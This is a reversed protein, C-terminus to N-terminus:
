VHYIRQVRTPLKTLLEHAGTGCKEGFEYFGVYKGNVWGYITVIDGEKINSDFPINAMCMDM